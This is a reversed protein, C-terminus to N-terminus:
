DIRRLGTRFRETNTVYGDALRQIMAPDVADMRLVAPVGLAMAGTPVEMGALVLAGGGVLASEHVIAGELVQSSSGVLARDHVHCACLHACHAIVCDNGVTIASTGAGHVVAGDQVSTREGIVVQGTDGRLVAKPWVSSDSGIVVDGIITADPHVFAMAHIRPELSGLAYIPM